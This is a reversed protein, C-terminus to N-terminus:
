RVELLEAACWGEVGASRVRWWVLGGSEAPGELVEVQTGPALSLVITQDTGPSARLNLGEIGARVYATAGPVLEGPAATPGPTPTASLPSSATPPSAATGLVSADSLPPATTIDPAFTPSVQATPPTDPGRASQLAISITAGILFIAVVILLPLLWAQSREFFSATREADDITRRSLPAREGGPALDPYRDLLPYTSTPAGGRRGGRAPPDPEAARRGGAPTRGLPQAREGGAARAPRRGADDDPGVVLVGYQPLMRAVLRHYADITEAAVTIQEGHAVRARLRHMKRIGEAEAASLPSQEDGALGDLLQPFPAAAVTLRRHIAHARLADELSGHLSLLALEPPGRRIRSQALTYKQRASDILEIPSPLSDNNLQTTM